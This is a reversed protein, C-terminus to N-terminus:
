RTGMVIGYVDALRQNESDDVAFASCFMDYMSLHSFRVISRVQEVSSLFFTM